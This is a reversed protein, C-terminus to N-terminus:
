VIIRLQTKWDTQELKGTLAHVASVVNGSRNYAVLKLM